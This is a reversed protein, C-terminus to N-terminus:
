HGSLSRYLALLRDAMAPLTLPEACERAARRAVANGALAALDDLRGTLEGQNVADAGQEGHDLFAADVAGRHPQADGLGCQAALHLSQFVFEAAFQQLALGAAHLGSGEAVREHFLALGKSVVGNKAMGENTAAKIFRNRLTLPGLTLPSFPSAAEGSM